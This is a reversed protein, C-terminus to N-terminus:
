LQRIRPRSLRRRSIWGLFQSMSDVQDDHRGHPFQLVEVQFDQLWAAREPLVVLGAEIKASQASMRTLKDGEPMIAIPRISCEQRLDQILHTGSGKDEILVANPSYKQALSVVRKKLAPYELRKRDVHILYYCHDHEQWTTCVSYDNIEGAKSATDWSQVIRDNRDRCPLEQYTDFWDWKILAGGPPIPNQQYQASFQHSGLTAKIHDLTVRSEREPHLLSEAPRMFESDAGDPLCQDTEAIAPINVHVWPEQDLVHGVLDDLHLRQMILVIVDESKSDLRSYLTGDYWQRVAARKVKSMADTPKLPDDIIILNGGRGTLTGGVSTALRFGRATTMFELETNKEPDLRTKPFIERYWSAEMVARCDLSHKRSLETSYSAAIIRHAPDRGLVWAPFAVSACISKLSRPPLTILLRKVRGALCEQLNWAIVDIHWNHVYRQAPAVTHFSKQIFRSLYHRLLARLVRPRDTM